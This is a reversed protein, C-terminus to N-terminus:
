NQVALNRSRYNKLGFKKGTKVWRVPGGANAEKIGDTLPSKGGVSTRGCSPAMTGALPGTAIVLKADPGLPDTEPPVESNLIKASLGRGGLIKWEEPLDEFHVELNTMDVRLMKM